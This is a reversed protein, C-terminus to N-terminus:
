GSGCVRAGARNAAADVAPTKKQLSQLEKLGSNDNRDAKVRVSDFKRTAEVQLKLYADWDAKVDAAPRLAQLKSTLDDAIRTAQDFYPAAQNITTISGPHPLRTLQKGAADCIANARRDIEVRSLSPSASTGGNGNSSTSGGCATLGLAIVASALSAAKRTQM